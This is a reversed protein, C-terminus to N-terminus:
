FEFNFRFIWIARKFQKKIMSKIGKLKGLNFDPLEDGRGANFKGIAVKVLM